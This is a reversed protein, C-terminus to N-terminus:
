TVRYVKYEVAHPVMRGEAVFLTHNLWGCRPDGNEFRPTTRFYQDGYDTSSGATIARQVKENMQLLGLVVAYVAAGDDTLFSPVCM